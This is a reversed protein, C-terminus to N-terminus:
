KSTEQTPHPSLNKSVQVATLCVAFVVFAILPFGFLMAFFVLIWRDEPEVGELIKV